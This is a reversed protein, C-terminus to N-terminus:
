IREETGASTTNLCNERKWDILLDKELDLQTSYKMGVWPQQNTINTAQSGSVLIKSTM